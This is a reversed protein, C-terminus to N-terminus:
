ISVRMRDSFRAQEVSLYQRVLELEEELSVEADRSRNLTIRLVESLQEIVRAATRADGERVLVAVTNLSNFLFHPNLNAQLAALKAGALQESLRALQTERDRAEIFYRIAHEIGVM